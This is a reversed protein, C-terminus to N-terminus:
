NEWPSKGHAQLDGTRTTVPRVTIIRKANRNLIELRAEQARTAHVYKYEYLTGAKLLLEDSTCLRDYSVEM